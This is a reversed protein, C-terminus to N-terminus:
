DRKEEDRNDDRREQREERREHRRWSWCATVFAAVASLAILSLFERRSATM